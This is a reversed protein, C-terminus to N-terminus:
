CKFDKGNLEVFMKCEASHPTCRFRHEFTRIYAFYARMFYNTGKFKLLQGYLDNISKKRKM